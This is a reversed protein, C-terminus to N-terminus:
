QSKLKQNVLQSILRGDARGKTLGVVEGIIKGPNAPSESKKLIADIIKILDGDSLSAPLFEEIIAIENQNQEVLDQRSGKKFMEIAEHRKKVEQRLVSITEDDTIEKLSNIEKYKIQSLVFRLTNVREKNGAKLATNIHNQIEEKIM